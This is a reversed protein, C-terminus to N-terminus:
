DLEVGIHIAVQEPGAYAEFDSRYRRRIEPHDDFYQWIAEWVALVMRPMSGQGTFILYDGGEIHVAEPGDAVAVGTTIDFAGNADTEYASYVGYLHMDAIRHPTKEYIREDFFRNWLTGIRAAEPDNEDRNTTRATLGAVNFAGLRQLQPQM